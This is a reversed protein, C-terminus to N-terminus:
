LVFLGTSSNVTVTLNGRCCYAGEAGILERPM